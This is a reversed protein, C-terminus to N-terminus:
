DIEKIEVNPALIKAVARFQKAIQEIFKERDLNIKPNAKNILDAYYGVAWPDCDLIGIGGSLLANKSDISIGEQWVITVYDIQHLGKVSYVNAGFKMATKSRLEASITEVAGVVKYKNPNEVINAYGCGSPGIIVANNENHNHIPGFHIWNPIKAEQVLKWASEESIKLTAKLADVLGYTGGPIKVPIIDKDLIKEGSKNIWLREDVCALYNIDAKVLYNTLVTKTM